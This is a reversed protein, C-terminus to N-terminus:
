RRQTPKRVFGLPPTLRPNLALAREFESRADARRDLRRLLVAHDLRLSWDNPATKVARRLEREATVVDGLQLAGIWRVRQARDQVSRRDLGRTLAIATATRGAGLAQDARHLEREQRLPALLFAAGALCALALLVRIRLPSLWAPV